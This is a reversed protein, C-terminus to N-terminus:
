HPDQLITGSPPITDIELSRTVIISCGCSTVFEGSHSGEKTPVPIVRSPPIRGGRFCMSESRQDGASTMECYISAAM